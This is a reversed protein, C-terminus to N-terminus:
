SRTHIAVGPCQLHRVPTVSRAIRTVNSSQAVGIRSREVQATDSRQLVDILDVVSGNFYVYSVNSFFVCCALFLMNRDTKVLLGMKKLSKVIGEGVCEVWEAGSWGGHWLDRNSDDMEIARGDRRTSGLMGLGVRMVLCVQDAALIAMNTANM